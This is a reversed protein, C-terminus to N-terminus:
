QMSLPAYLPTRFSNAFAAIHLNRTHRAKSFGSVDFHVFDLATEQCQRQGVVAICITAIGVHRYTAVVRGYRKRDIVPIRQFCNFQRCIAVEDQGRGFGERHLERLRSM